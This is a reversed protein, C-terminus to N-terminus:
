SLNRLFLAYVDLKLCGSRTRSCTPLLPVLILWMETGYPVSIHGLCKLDPLALTRRHTRFGLFKRVDQEPPRFRQRM